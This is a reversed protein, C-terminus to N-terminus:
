ANYLGNITADNVGIYNRKYYNSRHNGGFQANVSLNEGFYNNYALSLTWTPKRVAYYTRARLGANLERAAKLVSTAPSPLPPHGDLPRYWGTGHPQPYPLFDYTFPWTAWCATRKTPTPSTNAARLLPQQRFSHQWNAYPYVDGDRVIHVDM